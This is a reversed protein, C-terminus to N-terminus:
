VYVGDEILGYKRESVALKDKEGINNWHERLCRIGESPSGLDWINRILSKDCFDLFEAPFAFRPARLGMDVLVKSIHGDSCDMMDAVFQISSLIKIVMRSNPVNRIHKMFRAYVEMEFEADASKPPLPLQIDKIEIKINKDRNDNAKREKEDIM